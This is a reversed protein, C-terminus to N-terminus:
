TQSNSWLRPLLKVLEATAWAFSLVSTLMSLVIVLFVTWYAIGQIELKAMPVFLALFIFGITAVLYLLGIRKVKGQLESYRSATGAFGGSFLLGGIIASVIALEFGPPEEKEFYCLPIYALIGIALLVYIIPFLVRVIVEGGGKMRTILKTRLGRIGSIIRM